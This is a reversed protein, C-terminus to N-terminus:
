EAMTLGSPVEKPMDARLDLAAPDTLANLFDILYQVDKDNLEESALENAGAINDVLSPDDMVFFDLTDLDTRSPLVAQRRDYNRLSNVSDMHHQVVAELTNFAGNHGWPGTLAVNRLTPTRFACRDEINGTVAERGFDEHGGAGHGKGPGIQPMAIAHFEHDTQFVGSHCSSCGAKGYFM